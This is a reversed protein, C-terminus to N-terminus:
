KTKLYGYARRYAYVATPLGGALALFAIAEFVFALNTGERRRTEFAEVFGDDDGVAEESSETIEVSTECMEGSKGDDCM